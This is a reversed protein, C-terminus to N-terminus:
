RHRRRRVTTMAMIGLGALFISAPEPVAAVEESVLFDFTLGTVGIGGISDTGTAYGIGPFIGNWPDAQEVDELRNGSDVLLTNSADFFSIRADELTVDRALDLGDGFIGIGYIATDGIAPFLEGNARIQISIKTKGNGMDTEFESVLLELGRWTGRAQVDDFETSAFFVESDLDSQLYISYSSAPMVLPAASAPQFVVGMSAVLLLFSYLLKSM